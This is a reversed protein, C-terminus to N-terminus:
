RVFERVEFYIPYDKRIEWHLVCWPGRNDADNLVVSSSPYVVTDCQESSRWTGYHVAGPTEDGSNLATLFSSNYKMENCSVPTNSCGVGPASLAADSTGHNPGALSVFDDVKATGGLNKLYYRSSLSGMSHTVLDVKTKGTTSLIHNVKNAIAGATTINSQSWDYTWDNLYSAPWGDEKFWKIMENWGGVAGNWGHVFLIPDNASPLTTFYLWSGDTNGMTNKASLHFTYLKNPLLGPAEKSVSFPGLAGVTGSLKLYSGSGALGYEFVYEASCGNPQVKGNLFAKDAAVFSAAETTVTPKSCAETGGTTTFSSSGGTTEGGSNWASLRFHYSTSPQLGLPSSTSVSKPSTGNGAWGEVENPYGESSRGYEFSYTTECGQPNVTGNLTASNSTISTASGTSVTPATCGGGGGGGSCAAVIGAGLVLVTLYSCATIAAICTLSQRRSM